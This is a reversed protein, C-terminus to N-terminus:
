LGCGPATSWASWGWLGTYRRTVRIQEAPSALGARPAYRGGGAGLWTSALYQYGGDHAGLYYWDASEHIHVCWRAPELAWAWLGEYYARAAAHRRHWRRLGVVRRAQSATFLDPNIKLRRSGARVRWHNTRHKQVRIACLVPALALRCRGAVILPAHIAKQPSGLPTSTGYAESSVSATLFAGVVGGLILLRPM